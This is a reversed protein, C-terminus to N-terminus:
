TTARSTSSGTIAAICRSATAGNGFIVAPLANYYRDATNTGHRGVGEPDRRGPTTYGDAISLRNYPDDRMYAAHTAAPEHIM